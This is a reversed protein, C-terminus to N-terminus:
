DYHDSQSQCDVTHERVANIASKQRMCTDKATSVCRSFDLLELSVSLLSVNSHPLFTFM